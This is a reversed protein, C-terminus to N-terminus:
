MCSPKCSGVPEQPEIDPFVPEPTVVQLVELQYNLEEDRDVIDHPAYNEQQDM